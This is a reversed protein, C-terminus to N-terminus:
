NPDKLVTVLIPPYQPDSIDWLKIKGDLSASAILKPSELECVQTIQKLHAILPSKNVIKQGDKYISFDWIRLNFDSGATVWIGHFPL